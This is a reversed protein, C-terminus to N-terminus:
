RTVTVNLTAAAIVAPSGVETTATVRISSTGLPTTSGGEGCGSLSIGVIWTSFQIM